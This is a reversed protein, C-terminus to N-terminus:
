EGYLKRHFANGDEDVNFKCSCIGYGSWYSSLSFGVEYTSNERLEKAPLLFSQKRDKNTQGYFIAGKVPRLRENLWVKDWTNSDLKERVVISYVDYKKLRKGNEPKVPYIKIDGKINGEVECTLIRTGICSIFSTFTVCILFVGILRKM